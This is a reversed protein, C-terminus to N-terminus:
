MEFIILLCRLLNLFCFMIKCNPNDVVTSALVTTSLGLQLIDCMIDCLIDCLLMKEHMLYVQHEVIVLIPICHSLSFYFESM